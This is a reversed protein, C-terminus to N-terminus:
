HDSHPILDAALDWIRGLAEGLNTLMERNCSHFMCKDNTSINSCGDWKMFGDAEFDADDRVESHNSYNGNEWRRYLKFDLCYAKVQAVVEFELDKWHEVVTELVKNIDNEDEELM